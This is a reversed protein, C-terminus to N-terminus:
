RAHGFEKAFIEPSSRLANKAREVSLISLFGPLGATCIFVFYDGTRTRYIRHTQLPADGGDEDVKRVLQAGALEPRNAIHAELAAEIELHQSPPPRRLFVLVVPLQLAFVIISRIAVAILLGQGWVNLNTGAFWLVLSALLVALANWTLRNLAAKKSNTSVQVYM